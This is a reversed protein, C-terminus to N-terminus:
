VPERPSVQTGIFSSDVLSMNPKEKGTANPPCGFRNPAINASYNGDGTIHWPEM